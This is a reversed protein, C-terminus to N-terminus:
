KLASMVDREFQEATKGGGHSGYGRNNKMYVATIDNEPDVWFHTGYAGSWGFSGNPLVKNHVAVRVGLGWSNEPNRGPTGDPVYPTKMLDTLESKFIRVGKYEGRGRLLEAFKAYDEVSGVLGAGACTYTLPFNEFTCRGMDVAIPRPFTTKDHMMVLRTWQDETPHYTIDTIGLPRFINKEIFDSYSMGSKEQIICAVADFAIYGSYSWYSLPDFSLYDNKLAHDVMTEIDAYAQKPRHIRQYTGIPEESGFGSCNSLLQYILVDSLPKHDAVPEGNEMRGVYLDAFGPLHDSAKDYLDFWGNQLAILVAAGTVPKTMSALRFLARPALKEGTRIDKVGARIDCVTEGHQLVLMAAGAVRGWEIDQEVRERLTKELKKGDLTKM